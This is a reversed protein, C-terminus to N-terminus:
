GLFDAMMRGRRFADDLADQRALIAGKEDVRSVLLSDLMTLGLADFLYTMTDMIGRFVFSKGPGYGAGSCAVAMGARKRGGFLDRRLRHKAMWFSQCRDILAKGRSPVHMFYLPTAFVVGDCAVLRDFIEQFGDEVVCRGTLECGGCGDCPRLDLEHTRIKEVQVGSEHLGEVVRDLLLETNGQVRPSASFAM